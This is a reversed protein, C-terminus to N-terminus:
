RAMARASLGDASDASQERRTPVGRVALVSGLLVIPFRQRLILGINAMTTAYAVTLPVLVVLFMLLTGRDDAWMRRAGRIGRFM